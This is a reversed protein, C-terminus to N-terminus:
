ARSFPLETTLWGILSDTNRTQTLVRGPGTFEMVLGEGSKLSAGIGKSVKRTTFEVTADFAVLHGSDVVLREDAGLEITDLAGYTSVVVTGSGTAHVLFGGEGGALSKFGGFKTDLEVGDSNALWSGKTLNLQNTVELVAIDGPLNAAVDVWDGDSAATFTTVFLSEGGLMSRKLGKMLGGQMKAEVSVGISSAMMADSEAKVSEGASLTIRAVAFSPNHRTTVNM